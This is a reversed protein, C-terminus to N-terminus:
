YIMRKKMATYHELTHSYWLKGMRRNNPMQTTRLKESNCIFSM